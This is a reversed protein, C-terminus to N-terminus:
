CGVTNINQDGMVIDLDQNCMLTMIGNVVNFNHERIVLLILNFIVIRIDGECYWLRAGESLIRFLGLGLVSPMVWVTDYKQDQQCKLICTDEVSLM